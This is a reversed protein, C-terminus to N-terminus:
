YFFIIQNTQQALRSNLASANASTYEVCRLSPFGTDLGFGKGITAMPEEAPPRFGTYDVMDDDESITILNSDADIITEGPPNLWTKNETHLGIVISKEYSLMAERFTKGILKDERSFYIEDGEFDLLDTYVISLGAQRSTQVLIRSIFEDSLILEVNDKGIMKAVELNKVSEIEAVINCRSNTAELSKTVALICKIIEADSNESASGLAIISKAEGPNAIELDNIDIPNGSRFILRTNKTKPVESRVEDEMWVKDLDALIVIKPNKQNENAIVLESVITFIKPSWGLILTHESEMVRSRGKRLESLKTMIGNSILGIFTSLMIIGYSTVLLMVLRFSWGQDDGMTGPDLTRMLSMWLAEAFGMDSEGLPRINLLIIVISIFLVILFSVMMLLIVSSVVGKSM